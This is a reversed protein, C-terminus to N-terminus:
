KWKKKPILNTHLPHGTLFSLLQKTPTTMMLTTMTKEPIREYGGEAM